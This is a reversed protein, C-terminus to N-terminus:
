CRPPMWAAVPGAVTLPCPGTTSITPTDTCAVPSTRESHFCANAARMEGLTVGRRRRVMRRKKYFRRGINQHPPRAAKPVTPPM